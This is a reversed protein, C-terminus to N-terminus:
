VVSRGGKPRATTPRREAAIIYSLELADGSRRGSPFPSLMPHALEHAARRFPQDLEFPRRDINSFDYYGDDSGRVGEVTRRLGAAFADV